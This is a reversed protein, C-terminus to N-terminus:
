GVDATAFLIEFNFASHSYNILENRHNYRDSLAIFFSLERSISANANSETILIWDTALFRNLMPLALQFIPQISKLRSFRWMPGIALDQELDRM